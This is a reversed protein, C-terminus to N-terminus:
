KNENKERYKKNSLAIRDKNKKRYEAYYEKRRNLNQKVYDKQYVKQYEKQYEKNENRYDKQYQLLKEKNEEVYREQYEKQYEKINVGDGGNKNYLNCGQNKYFEIWYRERSVDDTEEILEIECERFFPIHKYGAAKREKLTLKTQGIYITENNYKLKYILYM